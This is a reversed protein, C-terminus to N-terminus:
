TENNVSLVNISIHSLGDDDISNSLSVSRLRAVLRKSEKCRVLLRGKDDFFTELQIENDKSM